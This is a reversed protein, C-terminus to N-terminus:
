LLDMDEVVFTIEETVVDNGKGDFANVTVQKPWCEYLAYTRVVSGQSDLLSITIDRPEVDGDRASRWWRSLMENPLYGKKLTVDGFRTRGPRKHVVKEDNGDRYEVVEIEAQLGEVAKFYGAQVGEIEVTFNYAGVHDLDARRSPAALLAGGMVLAGATGLRKKKM